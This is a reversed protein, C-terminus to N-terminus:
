KRTTFNLSNNVKLASGPYKIKSIKLIAKKAMKIPAKKIKPLKLGKGYLISDNIKNKPYKAPIVSLYGFFAYDIFIFKAYLSIM